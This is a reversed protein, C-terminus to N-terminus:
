LVLEYTGSEPIAIEFTGTPLNEEEYLVEGGERRLTAKLSGRLSLIDARLADGATLELRQSDTGNFRTYEMALGSESGWRSGEFGVGMCGCLALVALVGALLLGLFLKGRAKM